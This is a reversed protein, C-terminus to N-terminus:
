VFPNYFQTDQTGTHLILLTLLPPLGVVAAHIERLHLPLVFVVNYTDFVIYVFDYRLHQFTVM